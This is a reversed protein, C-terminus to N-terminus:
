KKLILYLILNILLTLILSIVLSTVIPFYFEFNDKKIHIDGPLKGFPLFRTIHEFNIFVLGLIVLFIAIMILYYGLSKFM